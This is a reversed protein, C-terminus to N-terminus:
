RFRLEFGVARDGPDLMELSLTLFAQPQMGTRLESSRSLYDGPQFLQHSVQRGRLDRLSVEIQPYPQVHGARNVITATLVLVGPRYPHPKLERSLLEIQDPARFPTAVPAQRLGLRVLTSQLRDLDPLPQLFFSALNLAIVGALVLATAALVYRRWPGAANEDTSEEAQTQGRAAPVPDDAPDPSLSIGLVPLDGPPTGQQKAQPWEDFLAELANGVKQCKGCRYKGGGQALMAANVPHVTHCGQCRTYV